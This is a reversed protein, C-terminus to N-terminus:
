RLSPKYPRAFTRLAPLEKEPVTAYVRRDFEEQVKLSIKTDFFTGFQSGVLSMLEAKLDEDQFVEAKLVVEFKRDMLSDFDGGLIERLEAEDDANISFRNSSVYKVKNGNTGPVAYSHRHTGNYGATDQHPRVFNVINEGADDKEAKAMKENQKAEIYRDVEQKIDDPADLTPVKSKAKAKTTKPKATQTLMDDFSMPEIKKAALAM